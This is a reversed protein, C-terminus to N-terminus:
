IDLGVLLFNLLLFLNEILIDELYYLFFLEKQYELLYNAPKYCFNFLLLYIYRIDVFYELLIFTVLEIILTIHNNSLLKYYM